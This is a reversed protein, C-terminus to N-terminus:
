PIKSDSLPPVELNNFLRALEVIRGKTAAPGEISLDSDTAGAVIRSASRQRWWVSVECPLCLWRDSQQVVYECFQQYINLRSAVDLYDPHTVLMAMGSLRKLLELKRIWVRPTAEGLTILLTHDQPLTYPLEVLRGAIFPWVGGVGGPMAQFPDIDFCSADYDFELQQMWDLNRHVMPARFGSSGLEEAARNIYTTRYNFIAKSTFLRGDHNYGHIGVEHGRAKLDKILGHDLKYKYPIFYWASRLGLREEMAAIDSVLSQGVATEIDHTLTVAFQQGNPWPHIVKTTADLSSVAIRFESLFERPIYWDNGIDLSRNRSRQLFQRLPIPIFPRLLYYLKFKTSLTANEMDRHFHKALVCELAGDFVFQLQEM